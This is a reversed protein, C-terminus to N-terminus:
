SSCGEIQLEQPTIGVIQIRRTALQIVFFVYFTVLGRLCL